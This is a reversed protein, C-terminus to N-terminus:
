NNFVTLTGEINAIDRINAAQGTTFSVKSAVWNGGTQQCQASITITIDSSTLQYSGAPVYEGFNNTPNPQKGDGLSLTLVGELNPIDGINAAESATYNLTSPVMAGGTQECQASITVTINSSTLQYSGAPVYQGYNNTPNTNM